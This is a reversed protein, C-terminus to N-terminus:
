RARAAPPPPRRGRPTAAAVPPAQGAPRPVRRWACRLSVPDGARGPRSVRPLTRQGPEACWVIALTKTIYEAVALQPMPEFPPGPLRTSIAIIVGGRRALARVGWSAPGPVPRTSASSRRKTRTRLVERATKVTRSPIRLESHSVIADHAYRDDIAPKFIEVKQRAIQARRLRRILEETKGSYMSGVIVEIWGTGPYPPTPESM